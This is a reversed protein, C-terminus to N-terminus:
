RTCCCSRSTNCHLALEFWPFSCLVHTIFCWLNLFPLAGRPLHPRRRRPRGCPNRVAAAQQLSVTFVIFAATVLRSSPCSNLHERDCISRQEEKGRVAAPQCPHLCLDVGSDCGGATWRCSEFATLVGDPPKWATLSIPRAVASPVQQVLAQPSGHDVTAADLAWPRMPDVRYHVLSLSTESPSRGQPNTIKFCRRAAASSTKTGHLRCPSAPSSVPGHLQVAATHMCCHRCMGEDGAQGEDACTSASAACWIDWELATPRYGLLNTRGGAGNGPPGDCAQNTAAAAAAASLAHPGLRDRWAHQAPLLPEDQSSGFMSTAQKECRVYLM